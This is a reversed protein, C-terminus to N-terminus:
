SEPKAFGNKPFEGTAPRSESNIDTPILPNGYPAAVRGICVPKTPPRPAFFDEARVQHGEELQGIRASVLPACYRGQCHGMGIRTAKKLSALTCRGRSLAQDLRRREVEECRCLLTENTSLSIGPYTAGFVKWLAKQFQRHRALERHLRRLRHRSVAHSPNLDRIMALAALEGQVLAIRAGGAGGGDGAIYVDPVSTKGDAERIARLVGEPEEYEFECGLARALESQALFGYNMAVADVEYSRESGEIPRGGADIRAVTARRVRTDGDLRTLVHRYHIPVKRTGLAMLQRLGTVALGPSALVMVAAAWPSRRWPPDALEAVAVPEHGARALEHAVQLNLPGNGAILVRRGPATQYARILTQAAGTTMVGPLTWGPVPLAREYAGPSLVLREARIMLNGDAGLAAIRKDAFAGWVTTAPQFRVGEARAEAIVTRGEIYQSDIAAEDVTFDPAPQKFYQGGPYTREDILLVDLGARAATRAATLGAPGAGIVLVDATLEEWAPPSPEETHPPPTLLAPHREVRAGSQAAEMCARRSHGDVLVRCEGCVGMGCFVGRHRGERTRRLDYIGAAILASAVTEGPYATVEEGDFSFRFADADRRIGDTEIRM